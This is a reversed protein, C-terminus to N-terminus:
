ECRHEPQVSIENGRELNKEYKKHYVRRDIVILSAIAIACGFGVGLFSLGTFGTSLGYVSSCVIPFAEFFAFLISFCFGIYISFSNAIPETFLM